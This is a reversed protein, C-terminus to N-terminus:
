AILSSSVRSGQSLEVRVRVENSTASLRSLPPTILMNNGALAITLPSVRISVAIVKSPIGGSTSTTRWGFRPRNMQQGLLDVTGDDIGAVAAVPVRGLRQEVRQRDTPAFAPEAPERHRDTATAPAHARRSEVGCSKSSGTTSWFGQYGTSNAYM